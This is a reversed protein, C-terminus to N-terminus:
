GTSAVAAPAAPHYGSVGRLSFGREQPHPSCSPKQMHYYPVAPEVHDLQPAVMFSDAGASGDEVTDVCEGDQREVVVKEEDEDEDEKAGDEDAHEDFAVVNEAGECAPLLDSLPPSLPSSSAFYHQGQETDCCISSTDEQVDVTENHVVVVEEAEENEQEDELEEDRVGDDAHTQTGDSLAEATAYYSESPDIELAGLDGDEDREVDNDGAGQGGPCSDADDPSPLALPTASSESDATYYPASSSPPFAQAMPTGQEEPPAREEKYIATADASPEIPLPQQEEEHEEQGQELDYNPM